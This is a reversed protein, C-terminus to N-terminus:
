PAPFAADCIIGWTLPHGAPLAPRNKYDLPDPEEDPERDPAAARIRRGREIVTNRPIGLAEGIAAWTAGSARMDLITADQAATWLM